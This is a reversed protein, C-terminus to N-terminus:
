ARFYLILPLLFFGAAIALAFLVGIAQIIKSYRPYALGLSQFSSWFGHRLHTGLILMATCYVGVWWPNTFTEQVLRYLDRAERGSLDTVYGEPAGPGFRFQWIHLILFGLLAIGTLIMNLSALNAKSPGDKSRWVAYGTSGRADHHGKKLGIAMVIHLLFLLVLGVESILLLPGLDALKLVYSNFARGTPDILSLNGVLHLLIFALLGVGSLGMIFKKGVSSGFVKRFTLM